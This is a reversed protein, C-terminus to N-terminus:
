RNKPKKDAFKQDLYKFFNWISLGGPICVALMYFFPGNDPTFGEGRRSPTEGVVLIWICLSALLASTWLNSSKSSKPKNQNQMNVSVGM